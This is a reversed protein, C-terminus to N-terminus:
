KVVEIMNLELGIETMHQLATSVMWMEDELTHLKSEAISRHKRLTSAILAIKAVLDSPTRRDKKTSDHINILDSVVSALNAQQISYDLKNM